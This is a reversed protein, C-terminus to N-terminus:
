SSSGERPLEILFSPFIEPDDVDDILLSDFIFTDRNLLPPSFDPSSFGGFDSAPDSFTAVSRGFSKGNAGGLFSLEAEGDETPDLLKLSSASFHSFPEAVAEVAVVGCVASGGVVANEGFRDKASGDAM